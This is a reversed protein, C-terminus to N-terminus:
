RVRGPFAAALRGGRDLILRLPEDQDFRALSAPSDYAYLDLAFGGAFARARMLLLLLNTRLWGALGPAMILRLDIDSRPGYVAHGRARSGILAAEALWARRALDAELGLVFTAIREPDQRYWACYRACVWAQGNLTFSLSHALLFALLPGTAGSPLLQLLCVAVLLELLLRFTLEKRDMGRMGQTVWNVALIFACSQVVSQLWPADLPAPFPKPKYTAM